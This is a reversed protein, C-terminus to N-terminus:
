NKHEPSIWNSLYAQGLEVYVEANRKVKEIQQEQNKRENKVPESNEDSNENETEIKKCNGSPTVGVNTWGKPVSAQDGAINKCADQPVWMGPNRIVGPNTNPIETRTEEEDEQEQEDGYSDDSDKEIDRLLIIYETTACVNKYDTTCLQVRYDGLPFPGGKYFNTTLTVSGNSATEGEITIQTGKEIHSIKAEVSTGDELNETWGKIVFKEDADQTFIERDKPSLISISPDTTRQKQIVLTETKILVNNSYVNIKYEGPQLNANATVSWRNDKIVIDGSGWVKGGSNSISIGFPSKVDNAYGSIVPNASTTKLSQKDIIATIKSMPVKDVVTIRGDSVDCVPVRTSTDCIRLIYMGGPINKTEKKSIIKRNDGWGDFRKASFEVINKDADVLEILLNKTNKKLHYNYPINEGKYFQEGGNPSKIKIEQEFSKTSTAVEVPDDDTIIIVGDSSDCIVDKKDAYDCVTLMYDGPELKATDKASIGKTNVGAGDYRKVKYVTKNKPGGYLSIELKKSSKAQKWSYLIGEGRKFYEGGGKGSPSLVEIKQEKTTTATQADATPTVLVFALIFLLSTVIRKFYM